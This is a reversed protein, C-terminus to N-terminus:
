PGAARKRQHAALERLGSVLADRGQPSMSDLLLSMAAQRQGTVWNVLRRGSDTMNLAIERRSTQARERTVLDALVLRDCLRSAASVSTGLVSALAGLNLQDSRNIVLLARLQATPLAAGLQDVAREWAEVLITLGRDAVAAAEDAPGAALRSPDSEM